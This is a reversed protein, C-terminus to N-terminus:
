KCSILLKLCGLLFDKIAYIRPALQTFAASSSLSPPYLEKINLRMFYSARLFM